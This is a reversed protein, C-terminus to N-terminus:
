HHLELLSHFVHALFEAVLALFCHFHGSHALRMVEADQDVRRTSVLLERERERGFLEYQPEHIDVAAVPPVTLGGDVSGFTTAVTTACGLLRQGWGM